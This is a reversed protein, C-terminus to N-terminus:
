KDANYAEGTLVHYLDKLEELITSAHCEQGDEGSKLIRNIITKMESATKADVDVTGSVKGRPTYGSAEKVRAWYTDVTATPKGDPKVHGREIMAQVFLAREAKIGKKDKGDLKFWKVLVNGNVDKVDFVQCLIDAYGQILDGTKAVGEVLAGRAIALVGTDIAHTIIVQSM